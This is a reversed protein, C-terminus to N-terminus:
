VHLRSCCVQLDILVSTSSATEKCHLFVVSLVEALHDLDVAVTILCTSTYVRSRCHLSPCKVEAIERGFCM